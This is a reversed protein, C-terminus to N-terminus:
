QQSRIEEIGSTDGRQFFVKMRFLPLESPLTSDYLPMTTVNAYVSISLSLELTLGTLPEVMFYSQNDLKAFRQNHEEVGLPITHLTDQESLTFRIVPIEKCKLGETGNNLTASYHVSEIQVNLLEDKSLSQHFGLMNTGNVIKDSLLTEVANEFQARYTTYQSSSNSHGESLVM